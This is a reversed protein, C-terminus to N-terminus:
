RTRVVKDICKRFNEIDKLENEMVLLFNYGSERIKAFKLDNLSKCKNYYFSSKVEIYLNLEKIYFDPYYYTVKREDPIYVEFHEKEYEWEYGLDDLYESCTVEYTSRFLVVSGDKRTYEKVNTFTKLKEERYEPNSWLERFSNCQNERYEPDKWLNTQAISINKVRSERVKPNEWQKKTGIKRGESSKKRYEEDKWNRLSAKSKNERVKPDKNIEIQIKSLNENVSPDLLLTGPYDSLFDEKSTYNHLKIHKFLSKREIGCIPCVVM